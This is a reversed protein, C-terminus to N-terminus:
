HTLRRIFVWWEAAEMQKGTVPHIDVLDALAEWGKPPTYRRIDGQGIWRGAKTDGTLQHWRAVNRDKKM